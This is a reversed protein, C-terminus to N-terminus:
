EHRSMLPSDPACPPHGREDGVITIATITRARERERDIQPVKEGGKHGIDEYFEHGHKEVTAEGGKHGIDEYFEHGHKEATAEGGEKGIGQYFEVGHTQATREGGKKGAERTTMDGKNKKQEAM